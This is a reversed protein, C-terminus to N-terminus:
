GSLLLDDSAEAGVELKDSGMGVFEAQEKALTHAAVGLKRSRDGVNFTLEHLENGRQNINRLEVLAVAEQQGVANKPERFACATM